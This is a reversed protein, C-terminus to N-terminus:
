LLRVKGNAFAESKFGKDFNIDEYGSLTTKLWDLLGAEYSGAGAGSGDARGLDSFKRLLQWCFGLIMNTRGDVFEEAGITLGKFQRTLRTILNLLVLFTWHRRWVWM